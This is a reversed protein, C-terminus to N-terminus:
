QLLWTSFSVNCIVQSNFMAQLEEVIRDQIDQKTVTQSEIEEYTYSGIVKDIEDKMLGQYSALTEANYTKYDDNKTNLSLTIGVVAFHDGSEEGSKLKVTIQDEINYPQIDSLAINSGGQALAGSGTIGLDLQIASSIDGVLQMTKQNAPVVVFMMVGTMVTNVILIALIILTM